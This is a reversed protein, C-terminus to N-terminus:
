EDAALARRVACSALTDRACGQLWREAEVRLPDVQLFGLRALLRRGPETFAASDPVTVTGAYSALVDIWAHANAGNGVPHAHGTAKM